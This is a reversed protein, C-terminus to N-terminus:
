RSGGVGAAPRLPPPLALVMIVAGLTTAAEVALTLVLPRVEMEVIVASPVLAGATARMSLGAGSGSNAPMVTTGPPM